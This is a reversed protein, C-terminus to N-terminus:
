RGFWRTFLARRNLGREGEPAAPNPAALDELRAAARTMEAYDDLQSRTDTAIQNLLPRVEEFPLPRSIWKDRFMLCRRQEAAANSAIQRLTDVHARRVGLPVEDVVRDLDAVVRGFLDLFFVVYEVAAEPSEMQRAQAEIRQRAAGLSELTELTDARWARLHELVDAVPMLGEGELPPSIGRRSVVM